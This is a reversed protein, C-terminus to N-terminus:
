GPKLGRMEQDARAVVALVDEERCPKPISAYAGIEKIAELTRDDTWASSFVIRTPRHRLIERAADLGNGAGQLGIDMIVLDPRLREAMDVAEAESEATGCVEYGRATLASELGWGIFMEDEVIMVKLAM